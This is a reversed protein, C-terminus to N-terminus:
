TTWAAEIFATAWGGCFTAAIVLGAVDCLRRAYGGQIAVRLLWGGFLVGTLIFVIAVTWRTEDFGESQPRSKVLALAVGSVTLAVGVIIAQVGLSWREPPTIRHVLLKELEARYREARPATLAITEASSTADIM